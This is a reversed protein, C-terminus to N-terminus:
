SRQLYIILELREALMWWPVNDVVTESPGFILKRNRKQSVSGSQGTKNFPASLLSM